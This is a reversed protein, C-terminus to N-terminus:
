GVSNGGGLSGSAALSAACLCDRGRCCCRSSLLPPLADPQLLLFGHSVVGRSRGQGGVATCCRRRGQGGGAGVAARVRGGGRRRRCSQQAEELSHALSPADPVDHGQPRGVCSRCGRRELRLLGKMRQVSGQLHTCARRLTHIRSRGGKQSRRACVARGTCAKLISAAAKRAAAPTSTDSASPLTSGVGSSPSTSAARGCAAYVPTEATARRAASRRARSLSCQPVFFFLASLASSSHQAPAAPLPPPLWLGVRTPAAAGSGPQPLAGRSADRVRSRWSAVCCDPPPALPLCAAEARLAACVIGASKAECGM